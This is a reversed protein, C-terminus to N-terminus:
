WINLVHDDLFLVRQNKLGMGSIANTFLYM